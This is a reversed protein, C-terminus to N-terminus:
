ENEAERGGDELDAACLDAARLDFGSLEVGRLAATCLSAGGSRIVAQALRDASLPVAEGTAMTKYGADGLAIVTQALREASNPLIFIRAM